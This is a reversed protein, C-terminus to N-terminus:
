KGLNVFTRPSNEQLFDLAERINSVYNNPAYFAPDNCFRCLDNGGVFLTVMKWDNVFDIEKSKRM